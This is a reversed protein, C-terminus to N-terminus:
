TATGRTATKLHQAVAVIKQFYDKLSLVFIVMIIVTDSVDSISIEILKGDMWALSLSDAALGLPTYVHTTWVTHKVNTISAIM